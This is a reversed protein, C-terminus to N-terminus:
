LLTCTQKQFRRPSFWFYCSGRSKDSKSITVKMLQWFIARYNTMIKIEAWYTKQFLTIDASLSDSHSNWATRSCLSDFLTQWFLAASIFWIMPCNDPSIASQSLHSFILQLMVFDFFPHTGMLSESWGPCGGLSILRLINPDKTVLSTCLSSQNSQAFALKVPHVPWKTPKTTSHSMNCTLWTMVLGAKAMHSCCLRLDVQTSTQDAGEKNM